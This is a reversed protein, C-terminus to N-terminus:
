IFYIHPTDPNTGRRTQLVLQITFLAFNTQHNVSNVACVVYAIHGSM